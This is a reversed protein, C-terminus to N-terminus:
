GNIEHVGEIAGVEVGHHAEEGGVANIVLEVSGLGGAQFRYPGGELWLEVSPEALHLEEVLVKEDILAGALHHGAPDAGQFGPALGGGPPAQIQQMPLAVLEDM